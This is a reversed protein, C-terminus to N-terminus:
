TSYGAVPMNFFGFYAKVELPEEPRYVAKLYYLYRYTYYNDFEPIHKERSVRKWNIFSDCKDKLALNNEVLYEFIPTWKDQNTFPKDFHLEIGIKPEIGEGIDLHLRVSDFKGTLEEVTEKLVEAAQGLGIAGLYEYMEQESLDILCLRVLNKNRTPMYGFYNIKVTNFLKAFCFEITDFIEQKMTNGSLISLLKFIRNYNPKKELYMEDTFHVFFLPEPISPMNKTIDFEFWTYDVYRDAESNKIAWETFFQRIANWVPIEFLQRFGEPPNGSGHLIRDRMNREVTFAFDTVPEPVNLKSEFIYRPGIDPVFNKSIDYISELWAKSLVQEPVYGSLDRIVNELTRHM